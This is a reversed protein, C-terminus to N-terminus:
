KSQFQISLTQLKQASKLMANEKKLKENEEIIKQVYSYDKTIKRLQDIEEAQRL